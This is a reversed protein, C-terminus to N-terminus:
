SHLRWGQFSGSVDDCHYLLIQGDRRLSELSMIAGVLACVEAGTATVENGLGWSGEALIAWEIEDSRTEDNTCGVAGRLIWAAAAGNRRKGGDFAMQFRHCRHVLGGQKYVKLFPRQRAVAHTAAADAQRNHERFVHRFIDAAATVQVQNACFM